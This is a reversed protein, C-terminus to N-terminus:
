AEGDLEVDFATWTNIMDTVWESRSEESLNSAFAKIAQDMGTGIIEYLLEQRSLDLASALKDIASVEGKPLRVTVNSLSSPTKSTMSKLALQQVRVSVFQDISDYDHIRQSEDLVKKTNKM